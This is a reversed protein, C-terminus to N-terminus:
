DSLPINLGVKVNEMAVSSSFRKINLNNFFLKRTIKEYQLMNAAAIILIFDADGTVYYCQQVEGHELMSARFEDIIAAGGQKLSVEVIVTVYSGLLAGDLIAVEKKIIGADRLKKIRRQCATASLGIQQGLEQTAVRSNQQLLKLIHHDFADM